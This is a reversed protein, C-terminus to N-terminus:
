EWDIGLDQLAPNDPSFYGRTSEELEYQIQISFEYILNENLQELTVTTEDEQPRQKALNEVREALFLKTESDNLKNILDQYNKRSANHSTPPSCKTKTKM